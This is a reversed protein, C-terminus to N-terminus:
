SSDARASHTGRDGKGREGKPRRGGNGLVDGGLMSAQIASVEVTTTHVGNEDLIRVIDEVEKEPHNNLALRIAETENIRGADTEMSVGRSASQLLGEDSGGVLKSKEGTVRTTGKRPM